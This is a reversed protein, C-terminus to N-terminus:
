PAQGTRQGHGTCSQSLHVKLQTLPALGLSRTRGTQGSPPSVLIDHYPTKATARAAALLDFADRTWSADRGLSACRADAADSGACASRAGSTGAGVCRARDTMLEVGGVTGRQKTQIKRM